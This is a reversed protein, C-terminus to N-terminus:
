KEVKGTIKFVKKLKKTKDIVYSLVVTKTFKGIRKTDYEIKVNVKNGKKEVKPVTCGCSASININSIEKKPELSLRVDTEQKYRITGYDLWYEGDKVFTKLPTTSINQINVTSDDVLTEIPGWLPQKSLEELGCVAHPVKTKAKVGCGCASCTDKGHNLAVQGKLKVTWKTKDINKSNLPCTNCIELRRERWDENENMSTYRAKLIDKIGVKKNKEM